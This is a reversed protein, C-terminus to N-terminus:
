ANPGPTIKANNAGKGIHHGYGKCDNRKAERAERVERAEPREGREGREERREGREERREGREGRAERREGRAEYVIRAAPDIIWSWLSM